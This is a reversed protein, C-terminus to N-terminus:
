KANNKHKYRLFRKSVIHARSLICYHRAAKNTQQRRTLSDVCPLCTRSFSVDPRSIGHKASEWRADSPPCRSQQINIHRPNDRLGQKSSPLGLIEHKRDRYGDTM